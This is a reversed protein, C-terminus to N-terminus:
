GFESNNSRFVPAGGVGLGDGSLEEDKNNRLNHIAKTLKRLTRPKIM